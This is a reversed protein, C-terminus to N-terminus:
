AILKETLIFLEFTQIIKMSCSKGTISQIKVSHNVKTFFQRKETKRKNKKKKEYM